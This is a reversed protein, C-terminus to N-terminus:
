SRKVKIPNDKVPGIPSAMLHTRTSGLLLSHNLGILGLLHGREHGGSRDDTGLPEEQAGPDFSARPHTM